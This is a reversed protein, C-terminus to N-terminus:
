HSKAHGGQQIAMLLQLRSFIPYGVLFIMFGWVLTQSLGLGLSTQCYYIGVSAEFAHAVYAFWCSLVVAISFNQSSGFIGSITKDLKPAKLLADTLADSGIYTGVTLLFCVVMITLAAPDTLLWTL